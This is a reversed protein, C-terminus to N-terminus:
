EARLVIATPTRAANRGPLAAVLNAFVVAGVGVLVVSVVPVTPHPVAAISRAFVTWLQRGVVIGLPVGVVVGVFAVVTSQCLVAGALQRPTCGLVKLLALDRRRRRVSMVLSFALAVVAGLALGIALLEPASGITRYNVIQAPRQVGLVDVTNGVASHDAAFIRNLKRTVLELNARGSGPSVGDRMRVFALEPGNLNPDSSGLSGVFRSPLAGYPFLAGVGMSTHDAVTSEFGVAPFTATGVVKLRTPPVYFRGDKPTLYSLTVFDGVRKGLAALTAEGLM